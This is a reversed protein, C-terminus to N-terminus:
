KTLQQHGEKKLSSDIIKMSEENLKKYHEVLRLLYNRETILKDMNQLLKTYNEYDLQNM